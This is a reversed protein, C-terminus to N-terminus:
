NSGGYTKALISLDKGDRDGDSDIDGACPDGSGCDTTGFGPVFAALDSADVADDMNLDGALSCIPTMLFDGSEAAADTTTVMPDPTGVMPTYPLPDYVAPNSVNAQSAGMANCYPVEGNENIQIVWIHQNSGFSWTYGAMIYGGGHAEDLSHAIDVGSGGYTKQWQLNGDEDVKFVWVDKQGAGFSETFGAVVFGDPNNQIDRHELVEYGVEREEGGYSRHWVITGDTALRAVLVDSPTSFATSSEGVLIYGGGSIQRICNLSRTAGPVGYTQEWDISGDINLKIVWLGYGNTGALVYGSPSGDTDFTQRISPSVASGHSYSKQWALSGDLNLSLVWIRGLGYSGVAIYGDPNKNSDVTQEIDFGGTRSNEGGDYTKQWVPAGNASLKLIWLKDAYNHSSIGTVIYGNDSTQRISMAEDFPDITFTKQWEIAGNSYIKLISYGYGGAVIYGGDNTARISQAASSYSTEYIKSWEAGANGAFLHMASIVLFLFLVKKM